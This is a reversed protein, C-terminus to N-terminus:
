FPIAWALYTQNNCSHKCEPHWQQWWALLILVTQNNHNTLPHYTATWLCSSPPTSHHSHHHHHRRQLASLEWLLWFWVRDSSSFQPRHMVETWNHKNTGTRPCSLTDRFFAGVKFRYLEFNYHDIKIVNPLFIWFIGSYLKYAEAKM